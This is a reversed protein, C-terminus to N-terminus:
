LVPVRISAKVLTGKAHTGVNNNSFPHVLRDRHVFRPCRQQRQSGQPCKGHAPVVDPVLDGGGHACNVSAGLVRLEHPPAHVRARAPRCRTTPRTTCRSPTKKRGLVRELGRPMMIRVRRIAENVVGSVPDPVVDQNRHPLVVVRLQEHTRLLCHRLSCSRICWRVGWQQLTNTTSQLTHAQTQRHASGSTFPQDAPSHAPGQNSVTSPPPPAVLQQIRGQGWGRGKSSCGEVAVRRSEAPCM